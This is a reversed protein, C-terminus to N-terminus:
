AIKHSHKKPINSIVSYLIIYCTHDKYIVCVVYTEIPSKCILSYIFIVCSKLLFNSLRPLSFVQVSTIMEVIIHEDVRVIPGYFIHIM